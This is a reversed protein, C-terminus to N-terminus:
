RRPPKPKPPCFNQGCWTNPGLPGGAIATGSIPTVPAGFTLTAAAFALTLVIALLAKM